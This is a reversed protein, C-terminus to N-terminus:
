GQPSALAAALAQRAAWVQVLALSERGRGSLAAAARFAQEESGHALRSRLYREHIPERAIYAWVALTIIGATLALAAIRGQRGRLCPPPM